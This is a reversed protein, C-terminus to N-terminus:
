AAVDKENSFKADQNILFRYLAGKKHSAFTWFTQAIPGPQLSNVVWLRDPEPLGLTPLLGLLASAAAQFTPYPKSIEKGDFKVSLRWPPEPLSTM